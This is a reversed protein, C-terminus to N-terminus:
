PPARRRSRNRSCRPRRRPSVGWCRRRTIRPSGPSSRTPACEVEPQRARGPKLVGQVTQEAGRPERPQARGRRAARRCRRRASPERSSGSASAITSSPASIAGASRSSSAVAGIRSGDHRFRESAVGSAPDIEMLKWPSACPLAGFRCRLFALGSTHVPVLVSARSSWFLNDPHGGVDVDRESDGGPALPRIAVRGSGTPAALTAGGATHATPWRPEARAHRARKRLGAPPATRSCPRLLSRALGAPRWGPRRRDHLLTRAPGAARAPLQDGLSTRTPAIWVDNGLRTGAVSGSASRQAIARAACASCSSPGRRGHGVVAVAVSGIPPAQRSATRRSTGASPPLRCPAEGHARTSSAPEGAGPAPPYLKRAPGIRRGGRRARGALRGRRTACRASSCCSRAACAVDESEFGCVPRARPRPAPDRAARSERWALRRRRDWLSRRPPVSMRLRQAPAARGRAARVRASSRSRPRSTAPAAGHDRGPAGAPRGRDWASRVLRLALAALTVRRLGPPRPRRLAPLAGRAACGNCRRLICGSVGALRGSPRRQLHGGPCALGAASLASAASRSGVARAPHGCAPTARSAM